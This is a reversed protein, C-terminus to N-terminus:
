VGGVLDNETKRNNTRIYHSGDAAGGFLNINGGAIGMGPKFGGDMDGEWVGIEKLKEIIKKLADSLSGLQDELEDLKNWQGCDSCVMAKNMLMQNTIFEGIFDQINCLDVAPLKDGLYGILCDNLDNLDECNRHLVSLNPNLGTNKQLSECEKDTIGNVVFNAAYSKLDDCAGCYDSM